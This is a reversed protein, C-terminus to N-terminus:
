KRLKLDRHRKIETVATILASHIKMRVPQPILPIPAM